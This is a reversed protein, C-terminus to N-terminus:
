QGDEQTDIEHCFGRHFVWEQLVYSSSSGLCVRYLLISSTTIIPGGCVVKKDEESSVLNLTAHWEQDLLWSFEQLITM